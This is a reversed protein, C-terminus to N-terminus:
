CILLLRLSLIICELITFYQILFNSFTIFFKSRIFLYTTFLWKSDIFSLLFLLNCFKTMVKIFWVLIRLIFFKLIKFSANIIFIILDQSLLLLLLCFLFILLKRSRYSPSIFMTIRNIISNFAPYTPSFEILITNFLM